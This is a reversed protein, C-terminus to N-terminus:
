NFDIGAFDAIDYAAGCDECAVRLIETDPSHASLAGDDVTASWVCTEHVLFRSSGCGTCASLAM